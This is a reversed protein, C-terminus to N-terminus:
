SVLMERQLTWPMQVKQVILSQFSLKQLGSVKLVVFSLFISVTHFLVVSCSLTIICHLAPSLLQSKSAWPLASLFLWKLSCYYFSYYKLYQVLALKCTSALMVDMDETNYTSVCSISSYTTWKLLPLLFMTSILIPAALVLDQATHPFTGSM